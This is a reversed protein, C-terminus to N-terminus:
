IYSYELKQSYTQGNKVYIFVATGSAEYIYEKMRFDEHGLAIMVLEMASMIGANRATRDKILLLIRMYDMYDLSNYGAASGTEKGAKNKDSFLSTKLGAAGSSIVTNIDTIWNDANKVTAISEGAYLERLEMVSEAYAWISMIFYQAAKILVMNGTYGLLQLALGFCENKKQVDTVLYSLNLGERILVLKFLVENLNDKDSQRGCLIYEIEYDLLRGASRDNKEIYGTQQGNKEIYDTYGAYRSIIYESVLAQRIDINSIGDGGYSGSVCTDALDSYDMSKDSIEGDIVLGAAGEKLIQYIKNLSTISTNYDDARFTYQEYEQVITKISFGNIESEIDEYIKEIKTIYEQKEVDPESIKMCIDQVAQMNGVINEIISNDNDVSDRIYGESLVDADGYETYLRDIDESLEQYLEDSIDSRNFNLKEHCERISQESKTRLEEYSSAQYLIDQSINHIEDSIREIKRSYQSLINVDDAEYMYYLEDMNKKCEAVMSTIENEKEDMDSCTNILLSMVSSSEGAAAQTSCIAETVRRVADSEKIRNNVVNYNKVVDAYGGSKMYKIIQEEVGYGGNDTMYKYGTYSAETLSLDKSYTKINEKIYQLIKENIIDSKKLAFIDFQELLDNSYAAFVSEDSLSCSQKIITNYGSMAASDVCTTVFSVVIMFVMAAMVTIQARLSITRIYSITRIHSITKIHSIAATNIM